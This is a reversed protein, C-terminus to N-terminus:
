MSEKGLYAKVADLFKGASQFSEKAEEDSVEEGEDGYHGVDHRKLTVLSTIISSPISCARKQM